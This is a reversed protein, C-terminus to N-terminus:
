NVKSNSAKKFLDDKFLTYFLTPPIMAASITGSVIKRYFSTTNDCVYFDGGTLFALTGFALGMSHAVNLLHATTDKSNIEFKGDNICSQNKLFKSWPIIVGKPKGTTGTTFLVIECEDKSPEVVYSKKNELQNEEIKDTDSRKKEYTKTVITGDEVIFIMDANSEQAIRETEEKSTRVDLLVLRKKSIVGAFFCPWYDVHTGIQLIATKCEGYAEVWDYAHELLSKKSYVRTGYYISGQIDNIISKFWRDM